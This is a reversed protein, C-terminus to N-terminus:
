PSCTPTEEAEALGFLSLYPALVPDQAKKEWLVQRTAPCLRDFPCAKCDLPRAPFLGQRIGSAIRGLVDHLRDAVGELAVAQRRLGGRRTVFWLQAEVSQLQPLAARAALAYIPLQLFRGGGLPDHQLVRYRDYAGTKYDIVVARSGTADVDIRDIRGCFQVTEGPPLRLTVAPWSGALPMGFHGEVALPRTQQEARWRSDAALFALLDHRMEHKLAEWLLPRGPVGGRKSKPM